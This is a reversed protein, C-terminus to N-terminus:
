TCYTIIWDQPNLEGLRVPLQDEPLSLAGSIHSFDYYEAGRVDVFVASQSDLAARADALVVRPIDPYPIGAQPTAPTAQERGGLLFYWAVAGLILLSGLFVLLLPLLRGRDTPTDTM